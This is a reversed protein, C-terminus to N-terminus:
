GDVKVKKGAEEEGDDLEEAKRKGNSTGNTSGNTGSSTERKKTKKILGTLDNAGKTAEEIRAKQQAPSEGLLSGLIGRLPDSDPGGAPGPILSPPLLPTTLDKLRQEMDGIMEKVDQIEKEAKEKKEIETDSLDALSDEEKKVRLKCSAIAEEMEKAAEGRMEEDIKGGDAINPDAPDQEAERVATVSSFELALSLKFHAEALISSEPPYLKTKLALSARADPIADNFRENELSIEALLDHTDALREYLHRAQSTMYIPADQVSTSDSAKGKDKINQEPTEDQPLSQLQRELLVRAVELTEYATAFDDEEELAAADDNGGAEEEEDDTTDWNEDGTFQFFPKSEPEEEKSGKTGDKTEVAAEIVDEASRQEAKSSSAEGNQSKNKSRADKKEGAVKGGLVDSHSVAVHYLCRGYLYLLEANEPAMEGKKEAQLETARSYIDSAEDYKKLGYALNASTILEELNAPESTDTM